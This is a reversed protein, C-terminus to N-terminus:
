GGETLRSLVDMRYEEMSEVARTKDKRRGAACREAVRGTLVSLDDTLFDM